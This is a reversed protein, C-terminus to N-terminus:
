PQFRIQPSQNAFPAHIFRGSFELHFPEQAQMAQLLLPLTLQLIKLQRPRCATELRSTGKSDIKLSDVLMDFEKGSADKFSPLQLLETALFGCTPKQGPMGVCIQLNHLPKTNAHQLFGTRSQFIQHEKLSRCMLGSSLLCVSRRKCTKEKPVRKPCNM